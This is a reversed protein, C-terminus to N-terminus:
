LGRNYRFDHAKTTCEIPIPILYSDSSWCNYNHHIHAKRPKTYVPNYLIDNHRPKIQNEKNIDGAKGHKKESYTPDCKFVVVVSNYPDKVNIM